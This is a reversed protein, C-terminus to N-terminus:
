NLKHSELHEALHPSAKNMMKTIINHMWILSIGSVLLMLMWSSTWLGTYQLAYGFVIPCVFGGLGGIVGVTGGVVGVENPFYEPIHKYVAAKGIGWALGICTALIAFVWINAQFYIRTTAKALLQKKKVQDGVKVVTEQWMDKTPLILASKDANEFALNKKILKYEKQDVVILSDNVLTVVGNKMATIGAGPSYIEM